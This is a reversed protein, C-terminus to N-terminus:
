LQLSREWVVCCPHCPKQPSKAVLIEGVTCPAASIVWSMPKLVWVAAGHGLRTNWSLQHVSFWRWTMVMIGTMTPPLHGLYELTHVQFGDQVESEQSTFLFAGGSREWFPWGMRIKPAREQVFDELQIAKWWPEVFRLSWHVRLKCTSVNLYVRLVGFFHWHCDLANGLCYCDCSSKCRFHMLGLPSNWICLNTTRDVRSPCQASGHGTSLRIDSVWPYWGGDQSSNM